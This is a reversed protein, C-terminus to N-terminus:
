RLDDSISRIHAQNMLVFKNSSIVEYLVHTFLKSVDVFDGLDEMDSQGTGDDDSDVSEEELVVGGTKGNETSGSDKDERRGNRARGIKRLRRERALKGGKRSGDGDTVLSSIVPGSLADRFISANTRELDSNPQMALRYTSSTTSSTAFRVM